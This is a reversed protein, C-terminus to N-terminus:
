LYLARFPIAMEVTWGKDTDGPKNLTGQVKVASRLGEADWSIMPKGSDRYPNNLFLDFITNLANVEIEYYQHTTTNPNIFVEFDNDRFVIDDHHVQYAWVNPEQIQAAIYLCTDDWLMKVRTTYTPKPKSDGEIDGFDTTWAAQKWVNDNIDGDITPATNTHYIVYNLPTTFLNELGKFESQAKANCPCLFYSGAILMSVFFYRKAFAKNIM